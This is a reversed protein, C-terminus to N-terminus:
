GMSPQAGPQASPSPSPSGQGVALRPVRREPVQVAPCSGAALPVRSSGLCSTPAPLVSSGMGLVCVQSCAGVGPRGESGWSGVETWNQLRKNLEFIRYDTQNGYPTHRRGPSCLWCDSPSAAMPQPPTGPGGLAPCPGLLGGGLGRRGAAHWGQRPCWSGEWCPGWRVGVSVRNWAGPVDTPVHSYTQPAFSCLCTLPPPSRGGWGGCSGRGKGKGKGKGTLCEPESSGLGWVCHPSCGLQPCGHPTVKGGSVPGQEWVPPQEVVGPVHGM